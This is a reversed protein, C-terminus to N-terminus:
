VTHAVFYIATQAPYHRSKVHSEPAAQAFQPELSNVATKLSLKPRKSKKAKGLFDGSASNGLM